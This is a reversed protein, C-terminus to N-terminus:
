PQTPKSPNNMRKRAEVRGAEPNIHVEEKYRWDDAADILMCSAYQCEAHEFVDIQMDMM